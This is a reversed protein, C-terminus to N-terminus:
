FKSNKIATWDKYQENSKMMIIAEILIIVKGHMMIFIATPFCINSFKSHSRRLIQSTHKVM